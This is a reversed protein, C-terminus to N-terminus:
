WRRKAIAADVSYDGAGALVLALAGGLLLLEFEIGKPAFFGGKMRVMVITAVMVSPSVSRVMSAARLRTRFITGIM